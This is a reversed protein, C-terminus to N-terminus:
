SLPAPPCPQSVSAPQPEALRFLRGARGRAAALQRQLEGIADGSDGPTEVWEVVSAPSGGLVAVRDALSAAEHIDHTVLVWTAAHSSMVGRMWEQLDGRTLADLGAFPEDLLVLGRGLILTRALAVRQRMGGSLQHPYADLAEGLGFETLLAEAREFAQTKLSAFDLGPSRPRAITLALAANDRATRWPLLLDRQSMYAAHRSTCPGQPSAVTTGDATVQGIIPPLLGALAHLLTTKGSGSAGVLAVREGPRLTLSVGQIVPRAGPEQRVGAGQGYGLTLDTAVLHVGRPSTPDGRV